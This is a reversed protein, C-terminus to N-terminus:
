GGTPDSVAPEPRAVALGPRLQLILEDMLNKVAWVWEACVRVSEGRVALAHGSGARGAM